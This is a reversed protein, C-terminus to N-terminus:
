FVWFDVWFSNTWNWKKLCKLYWDIVYSLLISDFTRSFKNSIVILKQVTHGSRNVLYASVKPQFKQPMQPINPWVILVIKASHTRQGHSFTNPEKKRCFFHYEPRVNIFGLFIGFNTKSKWSTVRYNPLREWLAALYIWHKRSLLLYSNKTSM